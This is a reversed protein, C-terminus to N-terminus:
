KPAKYQQQLRELVKGTLDVRESAFVVGQSLVVDYKEEQAVRHVVESVRRLLKNFEETRRMNLDERYEDRTRTLARKRSRIDQELRNVEDASMVASDRSLKDELQKLQKQKSVLDQNRRTFETELEKRVADYQPSQEVLKNPNVVGIKYGEASVAGSMGILGALLFLYVSKKM